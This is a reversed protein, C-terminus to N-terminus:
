GLFGWAVLGAILVILISNLVIGLAPFFPLSDRKAFMVIGLILGAFGYVAALAATLTQSAGVAGDARYIRILCFVLAAIGSLGLLCSVYAGGPNSRDTFM